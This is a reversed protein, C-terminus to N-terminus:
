IEEKTLSDFNKKTMSKLLLKGFVRGGARMVGFPTIQWRWIREANHFLFKPPRTSKPFKKIEAIMDYDSPKSAAGAPSLLLLKKINYYYQCTYIGAVYGGYSHGALVFDKLNGM